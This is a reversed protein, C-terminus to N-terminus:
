KKQEGNVTFNELFRMGTLEPLGTVEEARIEANKLYPVSGLATFDTIRNNELTVSVLSKMGSLPSIDQVGTNKLTLSQLGQLSKVFGLDTLQPADQITISELYPFRSLSSFDSIAAADEITLHKLGTIDSLEALSSAGSLTYDEFVRSATTEAQSSHRGAENSAATNIGLLILPILVISVTAVGIIIKQSVSLEVERSSNNQGGNYFNFTVDPGSLDIRLATGCYPCKAKDQGEEWDLAAGCHPCTLSTIKMGLRVSRNM